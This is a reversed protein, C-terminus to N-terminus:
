WHTISKLGTRKEPNNLTNLYEQEKEERKIEPEDELLQPHEEDIMDAIKNQAAFEEEITLEDDSMEKEVEAIYELDHGHNLDIMGADIKRQEEKHQSWLESIEEKSKGKHAARFENWTVTMTLGLPSQRKFM